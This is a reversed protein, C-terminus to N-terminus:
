ARGSESSIGCRLVDSIRDGVYSGFKQHLVRVAEIHTKFKSRTTGSSAVRMATNERPATELIQGDLRLRSRNAAVSRVFEHDRGGVAFVVNDMAGLTM